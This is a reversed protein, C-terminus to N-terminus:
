SRGPSSPTEHARLVARSKRLACELGKATPHQNGLVRRAARAPEDLTSVAERLDGLTSDPDM